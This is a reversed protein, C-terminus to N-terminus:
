KKAKAKAAKKAPAKKPAKALYEPPAPSASRGEAQAGPDLLTTHVQPTCVASKTTINAQCKFLLM